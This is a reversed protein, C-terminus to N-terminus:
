VKLMPQFLVKFFLSCFIDPVNSTVICYPDLKSVFFPGGLVGPLGGFSGPLAWFAEWLAVSPCGRPGRFLLPFTDLDARVRCSGTHFFSVCLRLKSM